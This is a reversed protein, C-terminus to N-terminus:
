TASDRVTDVSVDLAGKALRVELADGPAQAAADLVVRGDPRRVIAYGRELTAFPDLADLGAGYRTLQARADTIQARLLGPLRQGGLALDSRDRMLQGALARTARDLLLGVQERESALYAGPRFTDLARREAELSSRTSSLRRRAGTALAAELARLDHRQAARDPVALEAAVSPTAARRDGAFESLTVDTEHGVGVIVPRPHGAIARVVAEENFAWLDELSGGGRAVIVLDVPRGSTPETWRGLRDLAHVISREAGAGQVQCSSIVLRTLPWRREIVRRIDHLVAGSTSTVVGIVRPWTPLPRKRSSDFLGEAQLRAKLAEYRQALDGMGAPQLTEVYLQYAGQQEFIDIRGQAVVRLGTKPELPLALREQRFVVCRLQAHEDKLTFYAHGAASTSVNGIEGEVWVPNLRPQRRITDRVLRNVAAVTLVAPGAPQVAENPEPPPSADDWLGRPEMIDAVRPDPVGRHAHRRKVTDGEEVFIPVQVVLGSELTAPKKAGSQTDGAFGPETEAVKLEVSIPLEVGITEGEYTTRDLTMGEILYSTADGLQDATLHFQDYTENEMFHYEDGDQYLFQVPRTDLIARPWKATAQFTREVTQGRKVNKLKIRIQASGRAMKIHHYELIQWLEDDLEIVIGRRLDGVSIM